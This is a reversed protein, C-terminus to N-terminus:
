PRRLGLERAERLDMQCSSGTSITNSKDDFQDLEITWGQHM